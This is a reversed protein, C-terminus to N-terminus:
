QKYIAKVKDNQPDKFWTRYMLSDGRQVAARLNDKYLDLPGDATYISSFANPYVARMAAPTSVVGNRLEGFPASYAYYRLTAHEPVLLCDPFATAVKQIISADLANPDKANVNSDIYILSVGWRKKAYAIKEILLKTPDDTPTQSATKKDDSLQLSQPRICIGSRLGAARFKAFYEDVVGAMEPALTEVLRPDGVYTTAHRFQQGEIDWTIAGQANMDKMVDIAGDALVLLHKRFEALGSPTFVNLNADGFWGRPNGAWEQPGTALFIAGIPRRDPWNLQQPFASAFKKDIDGTLAPEPTRSRGFRLSVVFEDSGNPPIPRVITPYSDPYSSVRNTHVSLPFQTNAPKDLAWPFGVMLPKKIDEAVVALTGSEYSVPVVAAQGVNHALLPISGDYEKIKKPFRLVLPTFHLGQITDSASTNKTTIDITLRNNTLQYRTNVIGWPFNITLRRNTQDSSVEGNVAGTHLEGSPNKLLVEEVRFDGGLLYEVNDSKLSALGTPSMTITIEPPASARLFLASGIGAAAVVVIGCLFAVKM